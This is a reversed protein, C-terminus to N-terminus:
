LDHRAGKPPTVPNGLNVNDIGFQVQGETVGAGSFNDTTKATVTINEGGSNYILTPPVLNTLATTTPDASPTLRDELRELGLRVRRAAPRRKQNLSPTRRGFLARSLARLWLTRHM